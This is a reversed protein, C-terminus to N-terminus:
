KKLLAAFMRQCCLIDCFYRFHPELPAFALICETITIFFTSSTMSEGYQTSDLHYFIKARNEQM